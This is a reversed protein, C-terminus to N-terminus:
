IVMGKGILVPLNERGILTRGIRVIADKDVIVYELHADGLVESKQMIISNIVKAGKGIRVGRALICNEIEGEIICGDAILSNSVKAGELYQAPMEDRVKTYIRGNPNNFLDERVNENLMDMNIQMYAQVSDLRRAYGRFEYGFIKRTALHRRILDRALSKKGRMAAERVLNELLSREMIFMDMGMNLAGSIDPNLLVDTVRENELTYVIDSNVNDAPLVAKRYICTIDAENKEHEYLIAEYDINCVYEGTSLVVYKERSRRIFTMASSLADIWGGYESMSGEHRAYPPLIYLGDRKRSLDWEKGNGVHDMLSQYNSHTIIGVKTINSNVMNSLAFDIVRYRGGIPISAPTRKETLEKLRDNNSYAFIIALANM